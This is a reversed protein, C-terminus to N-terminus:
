RRHKICAPPNTQSPLDRRSGDDRCHDGDDRHEDHYSSCRSAIAVAASRPELIIAVAFENAQRSLQARRENRVRRGVSSMVPRPTDCQGFLSFSARRAGTCASTPRRGTAAKIVWGDRREGEQGEVDKRESGAGHQGGQPAMAGCQRAAARSRRQEGRPQRRPELSTARNSPSPLARRSGHTHRQIGDAGQARHPELQPAARPYSCGSV